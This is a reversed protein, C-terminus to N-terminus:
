GGTKNSSKLSDMKAVWVFGILAGLLGAVICIMSRRPGSKKLPPVAPDLVKVVGGFASNVSGYFLYKSLQDGLIKKQGPDSASLKVRLEAITNRTEDDIRKAISINLDQILMNLVSSSLESSFSWLKITLFDSKYNRSISLRNIVDDFSPEVCSIGRDSLRRRQAYDALVLSDSQFLRADDSCKVLNRRLIFDTIFDRSFLIEITKNLNVQPPPNKTYAFAPSMGKFANLHLMPDLGHSPAIIIHAVYWNPLSLTYFVSIVFFVSAMVLIRLRASWLFSIARIMDM